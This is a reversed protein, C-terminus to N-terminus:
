GKRKCYLHEVTRRTKTVYLQACDTSSKRKTHQVLYYLRGACDRENGKIATELARLLSRYNLSKRRFFTNTKESFSNVTASKCIRGDYSSKITWSQPLSPRQASALNTMLIQVRLDRFQKQMSLKTKQVALETTADNFTLPSLERKHFRKLEKKVILRSAPHAQPGMVLVNQLNSFRTVHDRAIWRHIYWM